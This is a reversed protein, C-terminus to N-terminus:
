ITTSLTSIFFSFGFIHPVPPKLTLHKINEPCAETVNMFFVIERESDYYMCTVLVLHAVALAYKTDASQFTSILLMALKDRSWSMTLASTFLYFSIVRIILRGQPM